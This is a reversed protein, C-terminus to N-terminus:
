RRGAKQKAMTQEAERTMRAKDEIWFKFREYYHLDEQLINQKGNEELDWWYLDVKIKLTYHDLTRKEKSTLARRTFGKYALEKLAIFKGGGANAEM